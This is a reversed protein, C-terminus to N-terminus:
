YELYVPFKYLEIALLLLWILFASSVQIPMKKLSMCIALLYMFFHWVESFNLSICTLAM